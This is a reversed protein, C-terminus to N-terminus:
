QPKEREYCASRCHSYRDNWGGNSYSVSGPDIPGKCRWKREHWNEWRLDMQTAYKEKM